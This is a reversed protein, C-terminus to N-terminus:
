FYLVIRSNPSIKSASPLSSVHQLALGVQPFDFTKDHTCCLIETNGCPILFFWKANYKTRNLSGCFTHSNAESYSSTCVRENMRTDFVVDLCIPRKRGLIGGM